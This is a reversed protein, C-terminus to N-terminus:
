NMIGSDIMEQRKSIETIELPLGRRNRYKGAHVCRWYIVDKRTDKSVAFGEQKSWNQMYEEMVTKDIQWDRFPHQLAGKPPFPFYENVSRGRKTSILGNNQQPISFISINDVANAEDNSIDSEALNSDGVIDQVQPDRYLDDEKLDENSLESRILKLKLYKM